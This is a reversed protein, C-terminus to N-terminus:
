NEIGYEENISQIHELLTKTLNNNILRYRWVEASLRIKWKKKFGYNVIIPTFAAEESKPALKYDGGVYFRIAESIYAWFEKIDEENMAYLDKFYKEM